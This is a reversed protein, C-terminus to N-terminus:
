EKLFSPMDDDDNFSDEFMWVVEAVDMIEGATLAQKFKLIMDRLEDLSYAYDATINGEYDMRSVVWSKPRGTKEDM